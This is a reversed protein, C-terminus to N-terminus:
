PNNKPSLSRWWKAFVNWKKSLLPFMKKEFVRSFCVKKVNSAVFQKKKRVIRFSVGFFIWLGGWYFILNNSGLIGTWGQVKKRHLIIIRSLCNLFYNIFFHVIFTNELKQHISTCPRWADILPSFAAIVSCERKLLILSIITCSNCSTLMSSNIRILATSLMGFSIM